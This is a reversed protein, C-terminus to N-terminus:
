PQAEQRYGHDPGHRGAPGDHARAHHGQHERHHATEVDDPDLQYSAPDLDARAPLAMVCLISATTGPDTYPSTIVEDGPGIGMAEVCTHLAQTGSGTAVCFYGTMLMQAFEKEFTPVTGSASQIRCWIRSRTTKVVSEVVNEDCYPWSPWSRSKRVPEGGLIALTRAKNTVDGRAATHPLLAAGLAGASAATLFDRRSVRRKSMEPRRTCLSRPYTKVHGNSKRAPENDIEVAHDAVAVGGTRLMQQETAPLLVRREHCAM